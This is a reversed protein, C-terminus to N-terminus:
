QKYAGLLRKSEGNATTFVEYLRVTLTHEFQETTADFTINNEGTVLRNTGLFSGKATGILRDSSDYLEFLLHSFNQDAQVQDERQIDLHFKGKYSYALKANQNFMVGVTWSNIKVRFPYVSFEDKSSGPQQLEISYAAMTSKFPAATKTDQIKLALGTGTESSPVAFAYSITVAANPLVTAASASQRSGSYENGDSSVLDAQFVPVAMPRDTKNFLKFKATVTQSGADKNENMHIEVVSVELNPHILESREDFKMPTGLKYAEYASNAAGSPLLLNLRGVTYKVAQQVGAQAFVEPTLVNLSKLVTDQDTAIAFHIYKEENAELTVAEQEVRKGSYVKGDGIGEVIFDPVTERQGAPNHALLQVVYVTGQATSERNVVAPTYRIPSLLSPIQFPDPWKKVAEPDTIATDSGKWAEGSIPASVILTEKKPYVYFDVDTWNLETLSIEDTRDIVAMYSLESNAKPQISKVNLASPQLTYEIGINTRVRLEYEPVRVISSGNNKMRVVVGLRTGDAIRENLVGKVEFDLQDTLQYTANALVSVESVSEDAALVTYGTGTSVLSATIVLAAAAKKWSHNM